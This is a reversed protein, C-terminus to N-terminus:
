HSLVVTRKDDSRRSFGVSCSGLDFGAGTLRRMDLNKPWLCLIAWSGLFLLSERLRDVVSRLAFLVLSLGYRCHPPKRFWRSSVSTVDLGYESTQGFPYGHGHSQHTIM